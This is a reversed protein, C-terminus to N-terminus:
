NLEVEQTIMLTWDDVSVTLELNGPLVEGGPSPEGDGKIVARIRYDRNRAISGDGVGEGVGTQTSGSPKIVTGNQSRNVVIPYYVYVPEKIGEAGDPDFYGSLVIKTRNAEDNNAFAYFWYPVKYEDSTIVVGEEPTVDNLLFGAGETWLYSGDPQEKTWGGHLWTPHAPMTQTVDGPAVKCSELANCLFIRDLTFTANAYNVSFDSRIGAISIRAVLRSLSVSASVSKGAELVIPAASAGSMPLLDSAQQGDRVTQVLSVNKGIFENKTQVGEFTGEPANAVVIVDCTGPSCLIGQVGVSGTTGDVTIEPEVVTNVTGDAFFLGITLRHITGEDDPLADGTARTQGAKAGAITLQLSATREGRDIERQPHGDDSSCSTALAAFVIAYLWSVVFIGIVKLTKKRKSVM